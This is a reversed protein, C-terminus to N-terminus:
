LSGTYPKRSSSPRCLCAQNPFENKSSRASVCLMQKSHKQVPLVAGHVRAADKEPFYQSLLQQQQSSSPYTGHLINIYEELVVSAKVEISLRGSLCREAESQIEPFLLVACVHRTPFM